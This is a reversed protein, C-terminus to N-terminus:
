REAAADSTNRALLDAVIGPLARTDIPKTLYGDCGAAIATREDGKMAYATVALIVISRTARDAKIRRAVELGDIGPLQLDLLIMRPRWERLMALAEEGDAATRVDHGQKSLVFDLLKRNAANDDVVLLTEGSM